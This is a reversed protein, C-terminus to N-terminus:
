LSASWEADQTISSFFTKKLSRFHRPPIHDVEVDGAHFSVNAEAGPDGETLYPDILVADGKREAKGPTVVQHWTM